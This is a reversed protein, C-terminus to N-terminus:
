LLKGELYLTEYFERWDPINVGYFKYWHPQKYIREIVRDLNVRIDNQDPTFDGFATEPINSYDLKDFNTQFGRNKMEQVISKFRKDVYGLKNFWMYAHGTSLTYRPNIRAPDIGNKTNSSKVYYYTVMKTERYEAILHNDTLYKPNIVNIRM